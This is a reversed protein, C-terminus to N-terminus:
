AKLYASLSEGINLVASRYLKWVIVNDPLEIKKAYTNNRGTRIQYGM